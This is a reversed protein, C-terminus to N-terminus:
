KRIFRQMHQKEVKSMSQAVIVLWEGCVVCGSAAECVWEGCVVCGSGVECM